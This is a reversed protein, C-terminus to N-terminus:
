KFYSYIESLRRGQEVANYNLEIHRRGERGFRLRLEPNQVLAIIAEALKVADREPVLLGTRNNLVVEPIDAHFTSVVPLGAAQAEILAVPAGGETDGNSATVSPSLFVDVEYLAQLFVSHPQYGHWQIYPHLNLVDALHYLRDRLVGDGIIRINIRKDPLADIVRRMAILGYELGKKEKFSAAMLVTFEHKRPIRPIFSIQDLDVGLRHIVIKDQACGLSEIASKMNNGEVLFLDGEMFLRKYRRRWRESRPLIGVDYGYFRTILPIGLKKRLSLAFFGEWGFHANIVFPHFKRLLSVYTLYYNPPLLGLRRFFREWYGSASTRFRPTFIHVIPYDDLNVTNGTLVYHEYGATFKIQTYVWNLTHGLYEPILHAVRPLM